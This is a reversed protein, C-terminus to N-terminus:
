PQKSDEGEEDEKKLKVATGYALLESMGQSITSSVFRVNVIADAGINVANDIMRAIAEERAESFLRTYDGVEGGVINKFQAVIDKGIHKARVTNGQVLGLVEEIEAGAISETNTVLIRRASPAVQPPPTTVAPQVPPVPPPPPVQVPQPSAGKAEPAPQEDPVLKKGCSKCFAAGSPNTQKCYPCIVAQQESM